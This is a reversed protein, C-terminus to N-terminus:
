LCVERVWTLPIKFRLAIGSLKEDILNAFALLDDKQNSLAIRLSKIGKHAKTERIKLEDIGFDM